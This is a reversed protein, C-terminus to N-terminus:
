KMRRVDDAYEDKILQVSARKRESKEKTPRGPGQKDWGADALWKIAQFSPKEGQSARLMEKVARSRFRIELEERWKDFHEEKLLNHGQMKVWHEWGGLCTTAFEYETPDEIELYLRKLSPYVKGEYEFDEDKLTFVANETRYNNTELFLSHTFWVGSANKMKSKDIM